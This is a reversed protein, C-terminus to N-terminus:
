NFSNWVRWASRIRRSNGVNRSTHGTVVERSQQRLIAEVDTASEDAALAREHEHELGGRVQDM